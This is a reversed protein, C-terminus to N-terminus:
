NNEDKAGAKKKPNFKFSLKIILEFLLSLAVVVFTWAFLDETIFLSKADMMAKGISKLPPYLIEAAIGAKWGLGISSLVASLFYPMVSPLYLVKLKKIPSLKYVTCVEKLSIDINKIGEYVNAWVVPMVMLLSIISPVTDKGIFLVILIIFSAVPTAKIVTMFPYLIDYVIKVKACLFAILTGLVIALIIGLMVRLISTLLSIWFDATITMQGLRALVTLPDPFLLVNDIILSLIWWIAVWFAIILVVKVAKKM